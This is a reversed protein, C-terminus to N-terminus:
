EVHQDIDLSLEKAVREIDTQYKLLVNLTSSTSDDDLEEIGLAFGALHHMRDHLLKQPVVRGVDAEDDAVQRQVRVRDRGRASEFRGPRLPEEGIHEVHEEDVLRHPPVVFLGLRLEDRLVRFHDADVHRSVLLEEVLPQAIAASLLSKINEYTMEADSPM